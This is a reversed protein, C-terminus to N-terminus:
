WCHSRNQFTEVKFLPIGAKALAQKENPILFPQWLILRNDINAANYAFLKDIARSFFSGALVAELLNENAAFVNGVHHLFPDEAFGLFLFGHDISM